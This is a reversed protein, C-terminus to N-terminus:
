KLSLEFLVATGAIVQCPEPKAATVVAVKNPPIEQQAIYIKSEPSFFFYSKRPILTLSRMGTLIECKVEYKEPLYIFNLDRLAGPSYVKATTLDDGSFPHPILPKLDVIVSDETSHKKHTLTMSGNLLLLIRRYGKFFSFTSADSVLASSIRYNFKEFRVDIAPPNIVYETTSGLGNKWPVHKADKIVNIKM